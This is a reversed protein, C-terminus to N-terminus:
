TRPEIYGEACLLEALLVGGGAAGRLTNHSLCVFKYDYQTDPRLRGVSIAMGGELERDLRAQPRDPEEFYHIFQKPATPLELEQARGKYSAWLAKIEEETPKREFDVFVAATHGNSVPVRLCQSTIAPSDATVIVGNEVTGWVKLPERESKEEEGGIYPILNDVMEPWTKFTKGAGSIAQYTCALVRKLGFAEKLPHLAPVYSQISCNSKVAIFGRATGLRRRQAEIVQLHGPNIEPVVMPVDPTWRNASNNSVVPCEHRAYREELALIEDKKMDVACFVFDVLGAIKDVDEQANLVILNKAEQPMPTDMAWRDGIAEEYTKGASRGSAAVVTLRFWPHHEMLTVFRQGVMGTAGIVGVKYQKM